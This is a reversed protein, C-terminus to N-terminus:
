PILSGGGSRGGGSRRPLAENVIPVVFKDYTNPHGDYDLLSAYTKNGWPVAGSVVGALFSYWEGGPVLQKRVIVPSGSTGYEASCNEMQIRDPVFPSFYMEGACYERLVKRTSPSFGVLELNPETRQLKTDDLISLYGTEPSLDAKTQLIAVDDSITYLDMAKKLRQAPEVYDPAIKTGTVEHVTGRWSVVSRPPELWGDKGIACHAATIVLRPAVVAGNCQFDTAERDRYIKVLYRRQEHKISTRNDKKDILFADRPYSGGGNVYVPLISYSEAAAALSVTFVVGFAIARVNQRVM